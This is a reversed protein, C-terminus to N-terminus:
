MRIRATPSIIPAIENIKDLTLFYLFFIIFFNFLILFAKMHFPRIRLRFRVNRLYNTFKARAVLIMLNSRSSILPDTDEDKVMM